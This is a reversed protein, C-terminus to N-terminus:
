RGALVSMFGAFAVAAPITYLIVILTVKLVYRVKSWTLGPPRMRLRKGIPGITPAKVWHAGLEELAAQYAARQRADREASGDLDGALDQVRSVDLDRYRSARALLPPVAGRLLSDVRRWVEADSFDASSTFFILADDRIELNFGSGHDMLAAMVDPTLLVLADTQYARPAYVRFWKEFAGGRLIRQDPDLRPLERPLPGDAIADLVLHPQPVPLKVMVYHWERLHDGRGKLNGFEIGPAVFRPYCSARRREGTLLASFITRRNPESEFGNARATLDSRWQRMRAEPTPQDAWMLLRITGWAWGVFIVMTVVLGPIDGPALGGQTDARAGYMVWVVALYWLMLLASIGALVVRPRSRMRHPRPHDEDGAAAAEAIAAEVDAAPASLWHLDTISNDTM